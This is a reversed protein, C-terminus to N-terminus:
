VCTPAGCLAVKWGCRGLVPGLGRPRTGLPDDRGDEPVLRVLTRAPCTCLLIRAAWDQARQSLLGDLGTSSRVLM